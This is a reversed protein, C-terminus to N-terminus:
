KEEASEMDGVMYGYDGPEVLNRNLHSLIMIGHRVPSYIVELEEFSYPSVVRGLVAGEGIEEGLPPAETELWGGQKPRVIEIGRVVIQPPPPAPEGGLSNAARLINLVGECGRAVYPEQAVIGGGLEVVISAIGRRDVTVTKTTGQYTTGGVGQKPRYLVRSGFARSLREDNMIYVYDVTPRDTGAHLDIHIDIMELFERTIAAALHDTFCGDNTGPFQRNLNLEDIPTFRKNVAFARPNAVPMVLLRGSIRSERLKPWLARIIQSGVNENGHISASIGVTPGNGTGTLEHITLVSDTGDAMTAFKHRHIRHITM